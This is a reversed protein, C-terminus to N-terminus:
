RSYFEIIAKADFSPNDWAPTNLIKASAQQADLGLWVPAEVKALKETIKEFQKKNKADASLAVVDGVRVRFSPIDVKKGNVTIHGHGVLQRAAARSSVLGMRYAVNDLRSELFGILIKSTDGTKETAAAVYNSFQRERLGYVNKAQQKQRLQKGYGSVKVHRKGPGHQGPAYNRKVLPCKPGFCKEGKLFLKEGASRCHSCISIKQNPM